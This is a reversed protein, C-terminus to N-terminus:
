QVVEGNIKLNVPVQSEFAKIQTELVLNKYYQFAETKITFGALTITGKARISQIIQYPFNQSEIEVLAFTKAGDEKSPNKWLKIVKGYGFETCIHTLKHQM